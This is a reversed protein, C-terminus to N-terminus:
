LSHWSGDWIYLGHEEGYAVLNDVVESDPINAYIGIEGWVYEKNEDKYHVWLKPEAWDVGGNM